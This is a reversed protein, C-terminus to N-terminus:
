KLRLLPVTAVNWCTSKVNYWLTVAGICGIKIRNRLWIQSSDGKDWVQPYTPSMRSAAGSQNPQLPPPDFSPIWPMPWMCLIGIFSTYTYTKNTPTSCNSIVSMQFMIYNFIDDRTWHPLALLLNSVVDYFLLSFYIVENETHKKTPKPILPDEYFIQKTGIVRRSLLELGGGLTTPLIIKRKRKPLIHWM